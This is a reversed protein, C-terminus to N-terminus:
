PKGIRSHQAIELGIYFIITKVLRRLPKLATIMNGAVVGAHQSKVWRTLAYGTKRELMMVFYRRRFSDKVLDM